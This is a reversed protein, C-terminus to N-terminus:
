AGMLVQNRGNNKAQYMAQDARSFLSPMTDDNKLSSVGVSVTVSLSKDEFTTSMKEINHRIREGVLAAGEIPTNNLLIVFEEGGFRYAHYTCDTDRNCDGLLRAVDKLVFDGASHGHQDNVQKFNDIDVVLMSLPHDNRKALAIDRELTNELAARNGTGTLPDKLASQLAEQYLLANRLPCILCGILMEILKLETEKFRKGRTITLEGLRDQQTVLNYHCSHRDGKGLEIPNSIKEHNFSLSKINSIHQIEIFFLQLVQPLELTTQLLNTMKLRLRTHDLDAATRKNNSAQDQLPFAITNSINVPTVM